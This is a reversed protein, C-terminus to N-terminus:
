GDTPASWSMLLPFLIIKIGIIVDYLSYSITRLIATLQKLIKWHSKSELAEVHGRKNWVVVIQSLIQHNYYNM